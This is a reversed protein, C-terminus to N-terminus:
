ARQSQRREAVQRGRQRSSVFAAGEPNRRRKRGLNEAASTGFDDSLSSEVIGGGTFGRPSLYVCSGVIVSATIQQRRTKSAINLRTTQKSNM